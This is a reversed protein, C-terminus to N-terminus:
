DSCRNASQTQEPIPTRWISKATVLRRQLARTLVIMGSNCIEHQALNLGGRVTRRCQSAESGAVDQLSARPQLPARTAADLTVCEVRPGLTSGANPLAPSIKTPQRKRLWPRKWFGLQMM